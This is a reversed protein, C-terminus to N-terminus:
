SEEYLTRGGVAAEHYVTGPTDAWHDYTEKGVVVVDVPIRLPRLADSLRVMERRPHEQTRQVVLLDLDSDGRAEGRARSGFLIIRLPHACQKLIQTAQQITEETIAL